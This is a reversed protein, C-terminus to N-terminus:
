RLNNQARDLDQAEWSSDRYLFPFKSYTDLSIFIRQCKKAYIHILKYRARVSTSPKYLLYLQKISFNSM